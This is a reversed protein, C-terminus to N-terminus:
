WLKDAESTRHAKTNESLPLLCGLQLSSCRSSCDMAPFAPHTQLVWRQSGVPDTWPCGPSGVPLVAGWLLLLEKWVHLLVSSFRTKSCASPLAADQNFEPGAFKPLIKKKKKYLIKPKINKQYLIKFHFVLKLLFSFPPHLKPKHNSTNKPFFKLCNGHPREYTEGSYFNIGSNLLMCLVLYQNPVALIVIKLYNKYKM